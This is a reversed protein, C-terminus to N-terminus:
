CARWLPHKVENKGLMRGDDGCFVLPGKLHRANKLAIIAEDGLDVERGKGSKPTTVVRRTVSRRVVIQGKVLDVDEAV